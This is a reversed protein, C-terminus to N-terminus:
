PVRKAPAMARAVADSEEPSLASVGIGRRVQKIYTRTSERGNMTTIVLGTGHEDLVAAASSLKGGIDAFADFRVMAVRTLPGQADPLVVTREAAAPANVASPESAPSGDRPLAALARRVAADLRNARLLAFAGAAFALLSTVLLLWQPM